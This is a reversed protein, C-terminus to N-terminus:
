PRCLAAITELEHQEISTRLPPEMHWEAPHQEHLLSRIAMLKSYLKSVLANQKSAEMNVPAKWNAPGVCRVWGAGELVSETATLRKQLADRELRMANLMEMATQVAAASEVSEKFRQGCQEGLRENDKTLGEVASNANIAEVRADDLQKKLTEIEIDAKDARARSGMLQSGLVQAEQKSQQLKTQLDVITARDTQQSQSLSNITRAQKQIMASQEEIQKKDFRDTPDAKAERISKEIYISADLLEEKLHQLWQPLTLDTREMTNGYKARGHDRRERIETVISEEIELMTTNTEPSHHLRFPCRSWNM